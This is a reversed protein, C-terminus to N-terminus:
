RQGALQTAQNDPREEDDVVVNVDGQEAFGVSDVETGVVQADSRGAAERPVM